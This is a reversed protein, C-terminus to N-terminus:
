FFSFNTYQRLEDLVFNTYTDEIEESSYLDRIFTAYDEIKKVRIIAFLGYQEGIRFLDTINKNVDLRLALENYKSPDKPKIRLLYKGKFGIKKPCFNITYNLIVGESELKKIRNHITSQSIEMKLQEKFIKRIEYTSIPKFGQGDRLINLITYDVNDIEFNSNSKNLSIGNTKFVKITEIIQYKKFYSKAMINDISNLIQYYEEPSKFIFLAFLSFDGIIGDLMKLQRIELLEKVLNPEKPNTKIELMVYKLNNPRINPKINITFNTIIKRDRLNDLKNQYTQRSLGIARSNKSIIFKTNGSLNKIFRQAELQGKIKNM